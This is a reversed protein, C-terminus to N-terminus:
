MFTEKCKLYTTLNTSISDNGASLNTAFGGISLAIGLTVSLLKKM